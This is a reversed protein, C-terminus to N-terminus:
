ALAVQTEPLWLTMAMARYSEVAASLRARAEAHRGIMAYLKGLGRRSLRPCPRTPPRM